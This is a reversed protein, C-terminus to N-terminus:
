LKKILRWLRDSYDPDDAEANLLDIEEKHQNYVTNLADMLEIYYKYNDHSMDWEYELEFDNFITLLDFIM